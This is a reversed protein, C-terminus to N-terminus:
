RGREAVPWMRGVVGDRVVAHYLAAAIHISVLAALVWAAGNHINRFFEYVGKDDPGWPPLRVTGYLLIGHKSFNSGLYGALPMVFLCAYLAWHTAAAASRQWQALFPAPPPPRHGWRWGLRVWVLLWITLGISKHLNVLTGRGAGGRPVDTLYWGFFLQGIVLLAVVWHLAIAVNAYRGSAPNGYPLFLNRGLAAARHM